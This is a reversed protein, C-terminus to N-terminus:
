QWTIRNYVRIAPISVLWELQERQQLFEANHTSLPPYLEFYFQLITEASSKGKIALYVSGSLLDTFELSL